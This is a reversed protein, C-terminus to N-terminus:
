VLGATMTITINNRPHHHISDKNHSSNHRHRIINRQHRLQWLLKL